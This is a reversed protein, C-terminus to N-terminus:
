RISSSTQGPNGSPEWVAAWRAIRFKVLNNAIQGMSRVLAATATGRTRAVRGYQPLLGPFHIDSIKMKAPHHRSKRVFSGIQQITLNEEGHAIWRCVRGCRRWLPGLCLALRRQLGQPPLATRPTSPPLNRSVWRGYTSLYACITDSCNKYWFGLIQPITPGPIPVRTEVSATARAREPAAFCVACASRTGWVLVPFRGPSVM